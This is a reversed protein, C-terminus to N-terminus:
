QGAGTSTIVQNCALTDAAHAASVGFAIMAATMACTVTAAEITRVRQRASVNM